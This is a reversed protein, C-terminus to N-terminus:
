SKLNVKIENSCFTLSLFHLGETYTDQQSNGLKTTFTSERMGYDIQVLEYTNGCKVSSLSVVRM